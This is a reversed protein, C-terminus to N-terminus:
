SSSSSLPEDVGTLAAADHALPWAGLSDFLVRAEDAPEAAEAGSDLAALNRALGLLSLARGLVFGYAGWREAAERYLEAAVAQDGTTEAVVARCLLRSYAHRIPEAHPPPPILGEAQESPMGTSLLVRLVPSLYQLRFGLQDQTTAVFEDAVARAAAQDGRADEVLLSVMLAPAVFEAYSMRRIEPVFERTLEAAEAVLGRRIQVNAVYIQAFAGLQSRGRERDWAIVRDATRVLEDWEGLDFLVELAGARGWMAQLEFGRAEALETMRNWEPLAPASGKWLWLQLALNGHAIATEEGLGLELGLRIAERLDQMGDPDGLECRAAGRFQRARVLEDQMGFREAIQVAREALELCRRNDEGLHIGAARSYVRGLEPGEPQSELLEIAERMLSEAQRNEGIRYVTRARM